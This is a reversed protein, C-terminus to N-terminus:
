IVGRGRLEAIEKDSYSLMDHLIETTHEGLKPAKLANKVEAKSFHMPSGPIRIKGMDPHEYEIIYRNEIMQPDNFSEERTNIPAVILNEAYLLPLWESRPRSEFAKKFINVLEPSDIGKETIDHFVRDNKPSSCGLIECVKQWASDKVRIILWKGDKCRYHSRLPHVQESNTRDGLLFGLNELYMMYSATGLLSIDVEQGIGYRERMLVALVVEYSAMVATSHDVIGGPIRKPEPGGLSFMMGSRAQGHRDFGGRDADPGRIGYANVRAYILKPNIRSLTTYDMKMKQITSTRVNTFFVDIKPILDYVIKRGDDQTLDLTISRKGRNTGEFLVSSNGEIELGSLNPKRFPDGTVPQEIKIVDAGMDSLIATAGPGAYYIGWELVKIGELPKYMYNFEEPLLIVNYLSASIMIYYQLTAKEYLFTDTVSQERCSYLYGHLLDCRDYRVHLVKRSFL